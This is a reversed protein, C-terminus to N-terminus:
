LTKENLTKFLSIKGLYYLFISYPYHHLPSINLYILSTLIKIKKESFHNKKIFDFFIKQCIKNSQSQHYRINIKKKNVLIKYKNKQIINHDIVFGHNLKALDYYIDGYEQLESFNERWDIFKFSNKYKNYIINEFHMDGHFRVPIGQGLGVWDIKDLLISIKPIKFGNITENEDKINNREFLYNIRTLTKEYYFNHCNKYFSKQKVINLKKKKWFYKLSWDLFNKFLYYKNKLQSFIVGEAYNYQYFFNKCFIVKPVFNKLLLSRKYRASIIDPNVFFKYVKKNLFFIGQDYKSLINKKNYFFDEAIQKTENGGIDFWKKVYRFKINSIAKFYALEGNKTKDHLIINKFLKYNKVFAVGTYNYFNKNQYNLKNNIFYKRNKFSVTAYKLTDSKGRHLFMTDTKINKYINKDLFVSDNTHFFFPENISDLAFKLTKTLSSGPGKFPFANKFIIKRKPYALSLYEKIHSGKYGLIIIFKAHLPYFDIIRSIVPLDGLQIMAKNFYQTHFDLRSGVGATPIVILM